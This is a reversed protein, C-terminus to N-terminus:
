LEQQTLPLPRRRLIGALLMGALMAFFFVAGGTGGFSLTALAPGPCLGVLAWGAGFLASGGLLQADLRTPPRAPLPLGLFTARRPAAVRWAFAMPVIAGAMVFALTPDWAGAIDLFGQVKLTDTMGSMLLGAGFLAGALLAMILRAM